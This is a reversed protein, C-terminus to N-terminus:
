SAQQLTAIEAQKGARSKGQARIVLGYILGLVVVAGLAVALLQNQKEKSLKNM